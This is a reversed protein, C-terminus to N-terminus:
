SGTKRHIIRKTSDLVKFADRLLPNPAILTTAARFVLSAQGKASAAGIVVPSIETREVMLHYLPLGGTVFTKGNKKGMSIYASKYRRLGTEIDVSGFIDRLIRRQWGLLQFGLWAYM